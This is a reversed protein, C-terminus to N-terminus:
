PTAGETGIFTCGSRANPPPSSPETEWSANREAFIRIPQHAAELRHGLRSIDFGALGPPGLRGPRRYARMRPLQHPAEAAGPKGLPADDRHQRFTGPHRRLRRRRRERSGENGEEPMGKDFGHRAYVDVFVVTDDERAVLDLSNGGESKWNSEIVEYGRQELFKEAAKIAKEKLESM